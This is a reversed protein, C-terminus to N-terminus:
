PWLRQLSDYVASVSRGFSMQWKGAEGNKAKGDRNALIPKGFRENFSSETGL